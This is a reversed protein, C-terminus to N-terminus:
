VGPKRTPRYERSRVQRERVDVINEAVAPPISLQEQLRRLFEREHEDITGDALVEAVSRLYVQRTVNRQIADCVDSDLGLLRGLHALDALEDDSLQRDTLCFLLYERYLRELDGRFQKRFSVGYTREIAAIADDTVRRPSDAANLTDILAVVANGPPRRQLLWEVLTRRQPTIRTFPLRSM